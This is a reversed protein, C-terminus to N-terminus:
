FYQNKIGSPNKIYTKRILYKKFINIVATRRNNIKRILKYYNYNINLIIHIIIQNNGNINEQYILLDNCIDQRTNLPMHGTSEEIQPMRITEINNYVICMALKETISTVNYVDDSSTMFDYKHMKM